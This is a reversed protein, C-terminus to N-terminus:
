TAHFIDMQNSSFLFICFTQRNSEIKKESIMFCFLSTSLLIGVKYPSATVALYVKKSNSTIYLQITAEFFFHKRVLRPLSKNLM